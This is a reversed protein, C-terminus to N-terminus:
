LRATTGRVIDGLLVQRWLAPQDHSGGNVCIWLVCLHIGPQYDNPDGQATIYEGMYLAGAQGFRPLGGPQVFEQPTADILRSPAEVSQPQLVIQPSLDEAAFSGGTASGVGKVGVAGEGHVGVVDGEGHVATPGTAHVGVKNGGADVGIDIETGFTQFGIVAPGLATYQNDSSM